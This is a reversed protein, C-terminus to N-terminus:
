MEIQLILNMASQILRFFINGSEGGEIKEIRIEIARKLTHACMVAISEIHGRSRHPDTLARVLSEINELMYDGLDEIELERSKKQRKRL